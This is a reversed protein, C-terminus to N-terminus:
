NELNADSDDILQSENIELRVILGGMKHITFTGFARKRLKEIVNAERNTITAVIQTEPQYPKYDSMRIM